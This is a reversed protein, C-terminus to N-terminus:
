HNYYAAIYLDKSNVTSIKAWVIECETQLEPV